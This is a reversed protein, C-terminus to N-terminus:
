RVPQSQLTQVAVERPINIDTTETQDMGSEVDNAMLAFSRTNDEELCYVKHCFEFLKVSLFIVGSVALIQLALALILLYDDIEM